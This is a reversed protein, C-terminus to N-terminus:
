GQVAQVPHIAVEQENVLLGSWENVDPEHIAQPQASCGGGPSPMEALCTPALPLSVPMWADMM